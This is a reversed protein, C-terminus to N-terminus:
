LKCGKIGYLKFKKTPIKHDMTDFVKGPDIFMVLTFKSEDFSQYFQNGLLLIANETSHFTQFVFQKEYLVSNQLLYEFLRNYMVRGM